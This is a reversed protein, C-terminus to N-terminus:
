VFAENETKIFLAKTVFQKVTWLIIALLIYMTQPEKFTIINTLFRASLNISSQISNFANLQVDNFNSFSLKLVGLAALGICSIIVGDLVKLSQTDFFGTRQYKNFLRILSYGVFLFILNNCIQVIFWILPTQGFPVVYAKKDSLFPIFWRVNYVLALVSLFIAGWLVTKIFTLKSIKSKSM